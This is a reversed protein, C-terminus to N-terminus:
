HFDSDSKTPQSVASTLGTLLNRRKSCLCYHGPIAELELVTTAHPRGAKVDARITFPSLGSLHRRQAEFAACVFKTRM